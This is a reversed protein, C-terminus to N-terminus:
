YWPTIEKKDAHYVTFCGCEKCQAMIKKTGRLFTKEKRIKICNSCCNPCCRIYSRFDNVTANKIPAQVKPTTPQIPPINSAPPPTGPYTYRSTGPYAYTGLVTYGPKLITIKNFCEECIMEGLRRMVIIAPNNNAKKVIEIEKPSHIFCLRTENKCGNKYCTFPGYPPPIKIIM